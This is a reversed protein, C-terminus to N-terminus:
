CFRCFLLGGLHCCIDAFRCPGNPVLCPMYCLLEALVDLPCGGISLFSGALHCIMKLSQISSDDILLIVYAPCVLYPTPSQILALPEHPLYETHASIGPGSM